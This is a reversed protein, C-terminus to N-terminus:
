IISQKGERSLHFEARKSVKNDTVKMRQDFPVFNGAVVACRLGSRQLLLVKVYKPSDVILTLGSLKLGSSLFLYHILLSNHLPIPSQACSLLKLVCSPTLIPLVGLFSALM